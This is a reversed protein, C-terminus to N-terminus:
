FVLIVRLDLLDLLLGFIVGLIYFVSHNLELQELLGYSLFSLSNEFSEHLFSFLDVLGEVIVWMMLTLDRVPDLTGLKLKIEM